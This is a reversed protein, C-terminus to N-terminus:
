KSRRRKRAYLGVGAAAAGAGLMLAAWLALSSDDGTRPGKGPDYSWIVYREWVAKYVADGTVTASVSPEWGVFRYGRREPVGVFGPTRDGRKLGSYVQDNFIVANDVGDTYTVTYTVIRNWQAYLTLNETLKLEAGPQYATGKGDAATNWGTFEYGDRKFGNQAIVISGDAASTAPKMTGTGGNADYSLTYAYVTYSVTPIEFEFPGHTNGASDKATLRAYENTPVTYTGAATKPNALKVKYSLQVPAFNSVNENITWTFSDAAADYVVVFRDPKTSDGFSYTNGSRTCTLKTGGVTLTFSGPILDFESGMKDVVTSGADVAYLIDNKIEDFNISSGGNLFNMFSHSDDSNGAGAMGDKVAVSYANYGSKIIDQWTNNAYYFAMDRNNASRKKSPQTKFDDSPKGQNFNLDYNIRYDYSDGKSEANREYVDNLYAQWASAESTDKPRCTNTDPYNNPDYLGQDNFSGAFSKYNEKTYYSRSFPNDSGWNGDKSYLYTSGDSILILHKRDAPVNTHEGLATLGALLGAHINTGGSLKEAMETSIADLQTSLDFWGSKVASRNFRVVCVNIKAGSKEASTKLANLMETAQRVVNASASASKDMVFVIDSALQEQASPLSLTVTSENNADLATATKSRSVDWGRAAWNIPPAAIVGETNMPAATYENIADSLAILKELNFGELKEIDGDEIGEAECLKYLEEMIAAYEAATSDKDEESMADFADKDPLADIRAQIAARQADAEDSEGEEAADASVFKPCGEIHTEAACDTVDANGACVIPPEGAQEPEKEGPEPEAAAYKPCGEIHTEAACDTVDANGTCVIPSEGAQEPEKEGAEPEAAAYKPCGEVHTEAACDTVDASGTCVATPPTPAVTGAAPLESSEPTGNNGAATTQLPMEAGEASIGEEAAAGSEVAASPPATGETGVAFASTGMSLM